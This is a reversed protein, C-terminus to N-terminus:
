RRKVVDVRAKSWLTKGLLLRTSSPHLGTSGTQSLQGALYNTAVPGAPPCLALRALLCASDLQQDRALSHSHYLRIQYTIGVSREVSSPRTGGVAPVVEL